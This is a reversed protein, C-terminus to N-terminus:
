SVDTEIFQRFSRMTVNEGFPLRQQIPSQPFQPLQQPKRLQSPKRFRTPRLENWYVNRKTGVDRSDKSNIIKVFAENGQDSLVAVMVDGWMYKKGVTYDM